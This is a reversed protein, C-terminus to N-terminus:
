QAAWSAAFGKVAKPLPGWLPSLLTLCTAVPRLTAVEDALTVDCFGCLFMSAPPDAGLAVEEHPDLPGVGGAVDSARQRHQNVRQLFLSGRTRSFKLAEGFAPNVNACPMLRPLQGGEAKESRRSKGAGRPYTRGTPGPDM